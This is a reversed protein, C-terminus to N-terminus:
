EDRERNTSAAVSPIYEGKEKSQTMGRELLYAILSSVSRGQKEAWDQLESALQDPVSAFVKRAVTKGM